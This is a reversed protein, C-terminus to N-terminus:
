RAPNIFEASELLGEEKLGALINEFQIHSDIDSREMWRSCTKSSIDLFQGEPPSRLDKEEKLRELVFLKKDTPSLENNHPTKPIPHASYGGRFFEPHQKEIEEIQADIKALEPPYLDGIGMQFMQSAKIAIEERLNLLSFIEEPTM